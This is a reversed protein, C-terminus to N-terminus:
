GESTIWVLLLAAGCGTPTLTGSRLAQSSDRVPGPRFHPPHVVCQTLRRDCKGLTRM